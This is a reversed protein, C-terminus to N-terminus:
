KQTYSLSNYKLAEFKDKLNRRVNNEYNSNVNNENSTNKTLYHNLLLIEDDNLKFNKDNIAENPLTVNDNLNVSSIKHIIGAITTMIDLKTILPDKNSDSEIISNMESLLKYSINKVLGNVRQNINDDRM